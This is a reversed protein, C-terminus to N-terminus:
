ASHAPMLKRLAKCKTEALLPLITSPQHTTCVMNSKWHEQPYRPLGDSDKRSPPSERSAERREEAHHFPNAKVYVYISDFLGSYECKHFGKTPTGVQHLVLRGAPSGQSALTYLHIISYLYRAPFMHTHKHPHAPQDACENVAIKVRPKRKTITNYMNYLFQEQVILICTHKNEYIAQENIM